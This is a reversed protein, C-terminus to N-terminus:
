PATGRGGTREILASLAQMSEKHQNALAQMTEAHQKDMQRDRSESTARMQKLGAWILGCKALGAGFSLVVGAASVWFQWVEVNVLQVDLV